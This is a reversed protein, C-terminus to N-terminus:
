GRGREAFYRPGAHGWVLSVPSEVDGRSLVTEKVARRGEATKGRNWDRGVEVGSAKLCLHRHGDRVRKGSELPEECVKVDLVTKQSGGSDVKRHVIGREEPLSGHCGDRDWDTRGKREENRKGRECSGGGKWGSGSKSRAGNFLLIAYRNYSRM